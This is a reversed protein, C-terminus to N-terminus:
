GELRRKRQRQFDANTGDSRGANFAGFNFSATYKRPNRVVSVGEGRLWEEARKLKAEIIAGASAIVLASDSGHAAAILNPTIGQSVQKEEQKMSQVKAYLAAVFGRAYSRGPGRLVGGFKLRALAAILTLWEDYLERADAVDSAPGYWRLSEAKKPKGKADFEVCGTPTKKLGCKTRDLYVKVSGVLSSITMALSGEWETLTTGQSYTREEGYETDAAIDEPTRRANETGLDAETLQHRLMLRRAFDMASNAEAETAGSGDQTKALIGRLKRRISDMDTTHTMNLTFYLPLSWSPASSSSPWFTATHTSCPFSDTMRVRSGPSEKSRVLFRGNRTTM